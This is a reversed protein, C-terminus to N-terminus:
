PPDAADQLTRTRSFAYLASLAPRFVLPSQLAAGGCRYHPAETGMRSTTLITLFCICRIMGNTSLLNVLAMASLNFRIILTTLFRALPNRLRNANV